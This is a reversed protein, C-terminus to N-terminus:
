TAEQLLKYASRVTFEGSHEGRWVQFDEHDEVLPIQLIKQATHEPFTNEILEKKWRHTTEILDAVSEIEPNETINSRRNTTVSLIWRDNWVSIQDGKGVGWCLGDKLLGKAAWVSMWTLSPLNGLQAHIFDLNPFYKAKLVQALLSDPYNILCWGQKALLAVNFQDLRRFGLGGQEKSICLENWTCWHIGRQGHGKQWWFKAVISELDSCLLKLLLFYSMSYTPIAQLISKVFVEKEGQSLHRTSWNDIRQKFRDKLNKFAEKKTKGVMNPLGLYREPDNSSQVGLM